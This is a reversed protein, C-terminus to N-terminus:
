PKCLKCPRKGAKIAQQRSQYGILNESNIKKAWPCSPKHFVKSKKSAVFKYPGETAKVALSSGAAGIKTAGTQLAQAKALQHGSIFTELQHLIAQKLKGPLEKGSSAQMVPRSKWVGAKVFLDLGDKVGIEVYVTTEIHFVYTGSDALYIMDVETVLEPCRLQQAQGTLCILGARELRARIQRELGTLSFAPMNPEVPSIELVPRIKNIEGLMPGAGKAPLASDEPQEPVRFLGAISILVLAHIYLSTKM